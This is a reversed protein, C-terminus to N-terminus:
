RNADSNAEYIKGKTEILDVERKFSERAMQMVENFNHKGRIIFAANSGPRTDRSYDHFALITWGASYWLKAAGHSYDSKPTFNGDIKNSNIIPWIHNKYDYRIERGDDAHLYHGLSTGWCGFYLRDVM